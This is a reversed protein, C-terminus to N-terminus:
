PLRKTGNITARTKPNKTLTKKTQIERTRIKTLVMVRTRTKRKKAAKMRLTLSKRKRSGKMKSLLKAKKKLNRKYFLGSTFSKHRTYVAEEFRTKVEKDKITDKVRSILFRLTEARVFAEQRSDDREDFVSSHSLEDHFKFIEELITQAEM